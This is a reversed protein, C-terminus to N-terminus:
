PTFTSNIVPFSDGNPFTVNVNVNRLGREQWENALPEFVMERMTATATVKVVFKDGLSPEYFYQTATGNGNKDAILGTDDYNCNGSPCKNFNKAPVLEYKINIPRDSPVLKYETAWKDCNKTCIPGQSRTTIQAPTLKGGSHAATPVNVQLNYIADTPIPAGDCFVTCTPKGDYNLNVATGGEFCVVNDRAFDPPYAGPDHPSKPSLIQYGNQAPTISYGLRNRHAVERYVAERYEREVRPDQVNSNARIASRHSYRINNTLVQATGREPNPIYRGDAYQTGAQANVAIVCVGMVPYQETPLQQLSDENLAPFDLDGGCAIDDNWVGQSRQNTIALAEAVDKRDQHALVENYLAAIKTKVIRSKSALDPNENEDIQQFYKALANPRHISLKSCTGGADLRDLIPGTTEFGHTQKYIYTRDQKPSNRNPYTEYAWPFRGRGENAYWDNRVTRSGPEFDDHPHPVYLTFPVNDDCPDPRWIQSFSTFQVPTNKTGYFRWVEYNTICSKRLGGTTPPSYNGTCRPDSEWMKTNNVYWDGNRCNGKGGGGGGHPPQQDSDSGGGIGGVSFSYAATPMLTFMLLLILGVVTIRKRM